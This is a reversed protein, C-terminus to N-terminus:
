STSARWTERPIAANSSWCADGGRQPCLVNFAASWHDLALKSDRRGFSEPEQHNDSAGTKLLKEVVQPGSMPNHIPMQNRSNEGRSHICAGSMGRTKAGCGPPAVTVVKIVVAYPDSGEYQIGCTLAAPKPMPPQVEKLGPSCKRQGHCQGVRSSAFLAISAHQAEFPALLQMHELSCSGRKLSPHRSSTSHSFNPMVLMTVENQNKARSTANTCVLAPGLRENCNAQRRRRFLSFKLPM